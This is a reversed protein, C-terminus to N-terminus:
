KMIIIEDIELRWGMGSMCEIIQLVRLLERPPNPYRAALREVCSEMDASSKQMESESLEYSLDKAVPKWSKLFGHHPQPYEASLAKVASSKYDSRATCGALLM